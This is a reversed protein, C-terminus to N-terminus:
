ADRGCFGPLLVCAIDAKAMANYARLRKASMANQPRLCYRVPTTPVSAPLLPYTIPFLYYRIPTTLTYASLAYAIDSKVKRGGAGAASNRQM